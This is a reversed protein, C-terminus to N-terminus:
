VAANEQGYVDEKEFFSVFFLVAFICHEETGTGSLDAKGQKKPTKPFDWISELPNDSVRGKVQSNRGKPAVDTTEGPIKM